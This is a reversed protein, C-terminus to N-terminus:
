SAPKDSPPTEQDPPTTTGAIIAQLRAIEAQTEALKMADQDAMKSIRDRSAKYYEADRRAEAERLALSNGWRELAAVRENSAALERHLQKNRESLRAGEVEWDKACKNVYNFRDVLHNYQDVLADYEADAQALERKYRVHEFFGQTAQANAQAGLSGAISGLTWLTFLDAGGDAV